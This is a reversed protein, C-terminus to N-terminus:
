VARSGDFTGPGGIGNSGAVFGPHPGVGRRFPRFGSLAGVGGVGSSGGKRPSCCGGVGRLMAAARSCSSGQCRPIASGWAVASVASVMVALQSPREPCKSFHHGKQHCNCCKKKFIGGRGGASGSGTSWVLSLQWVVWDGSRGFSALSGSGWGESAEGGPFRRKLPGALTNEGGTQCIGDGRTASRGQERPTPPVPWTGQGRPAPPVCGSQGAVPVTGTGVQTMLSSGLGSGGVLMSAYIQQVREYYQQHLVEIGWAMQLRAEELLREREHAQQSMGTVPVPITGVQTHYVAALTGLGYGVPPQGRHSGEGLESSRCLEGECM